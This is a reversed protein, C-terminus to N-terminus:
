RYISLPKANKKKEPASVARGGNLMRFLNILDGVEVGQVTAEQAKGTTYSKGIVTYVDKLPDYDAGQGVKIGAEKCLSYVAMAVEIQSADPLSIPAFKGIVGKKRAPAREPKYLRRKKM